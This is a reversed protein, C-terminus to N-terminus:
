KLFHDKLSVYSKYHNSYKEIEDPSLKRSLVAPNGKILSGPPFSKNPPVVSGAAVVCNEAIVCGDLVIAGMGILSGRGIQCAHLTVQHGLTVNNEIIVPHEETVHILSLDQVNVNKGIIIKNVDARIVSNFWVSTHDGLSVRGIVKAGSALYVGKGIEPSFNLFDILM